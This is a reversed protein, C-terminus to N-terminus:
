LLAASEAAGTPLRNMPVSVGRLDTSLRCLSATRNMRNVMVFMGVVATSTYLLGITHLFLHPANLSQAAAMLSRGGASAVSGFAFFLLSNRGMGQFSQGIRSGVLGSMRTAWPEVIAMASMIYALALFHAVRVLGLNHKSLDLHALATAKLGGAKVCLIAAGLLVALALVVLPRQVRPLGRRWKLACIVGIVFLLQWALPNFTWEDGAAALVRGAVYVVISVVLALASSRSAMLIAVPAWLMLVVYLALVRSYNPQYALAAASIMASGPSEIFRSLGQGLAINQDGVAAAAALPIAISSAVMVIQVLYLKGARVACRQVLGGFGARQLTPAYALTVSVGSLFVFAEAADSFGFNQPTLFDLGNWPVHDILIVILAFGRWFDIEPVRRRKIDAGAESVSMPAVGGPINLKLSFL